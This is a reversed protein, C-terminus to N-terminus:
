SRRLEAEVDTLISSLNRRPLESLYVDAVNFPDIMVNPNALRAFKSTVYRAFFRSDPIENLSWCGSLRQVFYEGIFYGLRTLIWVRHDPTVVQNKMWQELPPVFKDAETLVTAAHPLELREMFDTLVPMREELFRDFSARRHALETKERETLQRM